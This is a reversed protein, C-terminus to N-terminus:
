FSRFPKISLGGLVNFGYGEYPLRVDYSSDGYSRLFRATGEMFFDMAEGLFVHASVTAGLEVKRWQPYFDAYARYAVAGGGWREEGQLHGTLKIEHIYEKTIILGLGSGDNMHGWPFHKSVQYENCNLSAQNCFEAAKEEHYTNVLSFESRLGVWAYSSLMYAMGRVDLTPNSVKISTGHFQWNLGVHFNMPAFPFPNSNKWWLMDKKIVATGIEFFNKDFFPFQWELDAITLRLSASSEISRPVDKCITKDYSECEQEAYSRDGVSGYFTIDALTGRFLVNSNFWRSFGPETTIALRAGHQWGHDIVGDLYPAPTYPKEHKTTNWDLFADRYLTQYRSGDYGFKLALRGWINLGRRGKINKDIEELRTVIEKNEKGIYCDELCETWKEKPMKGASYEADCKETCLQTSTKEGSGEIYTIDPAVQGTKM